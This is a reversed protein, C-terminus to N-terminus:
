FGAGEWTRESLIKQVSKVYAQQGSNGWPYPEFWAGISNWQQGAAYGGACWGCYGDYYYRVTAAQFDINFATSMWRLPETGPGVSNDPAWKVQTIGMSEYVETTGVLQAQLPYEPFLTPSVKSRDGLQSQRWYSEHVYEAKLWDEPIGWKHAAWQILDDTSPDSLGDRGDVYRYLPNWQETTQGYQNLAGRFAQLQATMPAYDNAQTNEPRTEPAHTVLAAAQADSLPATGPATWSTQPTAGAGGTGGTGGSAGGAGGDASGPPTVAVTNSPASIGGAANYAIVYYSYTRGNRLGTDTLGTANTQAVTAGDRYVRYGAVGTPDSPAQWSLLTQRDSASASLESPSGPVSM